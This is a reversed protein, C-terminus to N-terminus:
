RKRAMVYLVQYTAPIFGDRRHKEEYSEIMRQIIRRPSLGEPRDAAANGAGIRKLARLLSPVDPHLDIEDCSAIEISAFGAGELASRVESESPFSQTHSHGGQESAALRHAERLEWLTREAFLACAFLGGPVLVRAAERFALPLDEVWQYVSTSYLLGLAGDRVPLAHADADLSSIGPLRGSALRTMGHALDSVIPRVHPCLRLLGETLEGTGTGVELAAGSLVKEAGLRELLERVVRKQVVAYRDYEEARCSFNRRVRDLDLRRGRKMTSFGAM